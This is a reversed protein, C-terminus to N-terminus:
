PCWSSACTSAPSSATVGLSMTSRPPRLAGGHHPRLGRHGVRRADGRGGDPPVAAALFQNARADLADGDLVLAPTLVRVVGRKVIGKAKSPDELQECIAVNHGLDLLRAVYGQAAHYPVGCM